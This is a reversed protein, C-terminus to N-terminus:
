AHPTSRDGIASIISNQNKNPKYVLGALMLGFASAICCDTTLEGFPIPEPEADNFSISPPNKAIWDMKDKWPRISFIYLALLGAAGAVFWMRRNGVGRRAFFSPAIICGLFMGLVLYHDYM